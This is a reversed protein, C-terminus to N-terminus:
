PAAKELIMLCYPEDPSASNSGPLIARVAWGAQLDPNSNSLNSLVERVIKQKIGSVMPRPDLYDEM